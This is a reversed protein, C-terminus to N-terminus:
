QIVKSNYSIAPSSATDDLNNNNHIAHKKKEKSVKKSRMIREKGTIKQKVGRIICEKDDEPFHPPGSSADSVMSLDEAEEEECEEKRSTSKLRYSPHHYHSGNNNNRPCLYSEDLYATWGSECGSSWASASINM